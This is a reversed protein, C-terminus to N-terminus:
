SLSDVDSFGSRKEKELTDFFLLPCRMRRTKSPITRLGTTWAM